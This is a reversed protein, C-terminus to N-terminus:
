EVSQQGVGFAPWTAFGARAGKNGFFAIPPAVYYTVIRNVMQQYATSFLSAIAASNALTCMCFPKFISPVIRANAIANPPATTVDTIAINMGTDINSDM